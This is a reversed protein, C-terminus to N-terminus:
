HSSLRLLVSLNNFGSSFFYSRLAFVRFGVKGNLQFDDEPPDWVLTNNEIRLGHSEIGSYILRFILNGGNEEDIFYRQLNNDILSGRITINTPGGLYRPEKDNIEIYILDIPDSVASKGSPDFAIFTLDFLSSSGHIPQWTAINTEPDIKIASITSQFSLRASDEEDNFYDDLDISWISGEEVSSSQLGGIYEPEDNLEM